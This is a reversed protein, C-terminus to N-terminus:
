NEGGETDDEAQAGDSVGSAVDEIAQYNKTMWHQVAWDTTLAPLSVAKRGEDICIVGDAILKDMATAAEFIDVYRLRAPDIFLLSGSAYNEEGYRKRNIESELLHLLPQICVSIMQIMLKSPDATEGMLLAPPIRFAQAARAFAEKTLLSLNSVESGSKGSNNSMENYDMGAPLLVLGNEEEFYRKFGKEFLEQEKEKAKEDGSATRNRKLVGKRGESRKYKNMALSLLKDYGAQIDELMSAIEQNDLRIFLVDKMQFRKRFAVTSGSQTKFSVNTFKVGTTLEDSIEYGDAIYLSGNIDCILVEGDILLTKVLQQIFQAGNQNPNPTYNWLYYEGGHVEENNLFTRFECNSVMAAIMNTATEVAFATLKLSLDESTGNKFTVEYSDGALLDVLWERFRSM